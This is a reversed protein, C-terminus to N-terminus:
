SLGTSSKSKRYVASRWWPQPWKPVKIAPMPGKMRTLESAIARLSIVGGAQISAIIPRCPRDRRFM